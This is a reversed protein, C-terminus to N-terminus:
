CLDFPCYPKRTRPALSYLTARVHLSFRLDMVCNQIPVSPECNSLQTISLGRHHSIGSTRVLRILVHPFCAAKGLFGGSHVGTLQTNEKGATRLRAQGSHFRISTASLAIGEKSSRTRYARSERSGCRAGDSPHVQTGGRVPRGDGIERRSSLPWSARGSLPLVKWPM